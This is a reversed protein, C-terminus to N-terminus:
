PKFRFHAGYTWTSSHRIEPPQCLKQLNYFQLCLHIKSPLGKFIVVYGQKQGLEKQRRTLWWIHACAVCGTSMSSAHRCGHVKVMYSLFSRFGRTLTLEEEKLSSRDPLKDYHQPFCLSKLVSWKSFIGRWLQKQMTFM